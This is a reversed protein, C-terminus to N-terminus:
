SLSMFWFRVIWKDAKKYGKLSNLAPRGFCFDVPKAPPLYLSISCSIVGTFHCLELRWFWSPTIEM